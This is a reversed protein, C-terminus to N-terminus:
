ADSSGDAPAPFGEAGAAEGEADGADVARSVRFKPATGTRRVHTFHELDELAAVEVTVGDVPEFRSAEYLLEQYRVGAPRPTEDAEGEGSVVRVGGVEVDLDHDGLRLLWRGGHALKEGTLKVPVTDATPGLITRDSRLWARAATLARALREYNRGYPAPVIAVPGKAARDGRLAHAVPGVLIFDIKNAHLWRLVVLSTHELHEFGARRAVGQGDIGTLRHKLLM